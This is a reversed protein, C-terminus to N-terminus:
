VAAAKGAKRDARVAAIEENIEDLSMEPANAAERRLQEFAGLAESRTVANESLRTPFPIARSMKMQRMCMRFVTPLDTGLAECIDTVEQKLNKDVRFQILTTDAVVFVGKRFKLAMSEYTNQM